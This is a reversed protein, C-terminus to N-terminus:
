RPLPRRLPRPSAPRGSPRRPPSRSPPHANRQSASKTVPSVMRTSPPRWRAHNPVQGLPLSDGLAQKTNLFPVYCHVSVSEWRARSAPRLTSTVALLLPMPRADGNAHRRFPRVDDDVVVGVRFASFLREGLNLREPPAAGDELGIEPFDGLTFSRTAAADIRQAAQVDQDVVRADLSVRREPVHALGLVVRHQVHVELPHEEERRLGEDPVAARRRWPPLTILMLETCSSRANGFKAGYQALLAHAACAQACVATSSPRSPMVILCCRGPAISVGIL